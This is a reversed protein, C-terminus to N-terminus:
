RVCRVNYDNTKGNYGVGGRYFRVVWARDTLPAYVTSSWFLTTDGFVSYKGLVDLDCGECGKNWCGESVCSHTVMCAGGTETFPCNQILARLEDITPLRAGMDKCYDIADNQTMEDSSVDSWGEEGCGIVSLMLIVFLYKMTERTQSKNINGFNFDNRNLEDM